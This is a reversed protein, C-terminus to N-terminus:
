DQDSWGCPSATTILDRLPDVTRLDFDRLLPVYAQTESTKIYSTALVSGSPVPATLCVEPHITLELEGSGGEAAKQRFLSARFDALRAADAATLRYAILKGQSTPLTLDDFKQLQFSAVQDPGKNIRGTFRLVVKQPSLASPLQLAARLARPDTTAFDVKSLQLLSTMPMHGCAPLGAVFLATLLLPSHRM